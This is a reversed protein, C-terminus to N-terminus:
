FNRHHHHYMCVSLCVPGFNHVIGSRPHEIFLMILMGNFMSNAIAGCPAYLKSISSNGVFPTCDGRYLSWYSQDEGRLQQYNRSKVYRRHNQYYNTLSYYLFVPGQWYTLCSLSTRIVCAVSLKPSIQFIM